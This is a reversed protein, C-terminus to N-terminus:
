SVLKTVKKVPKLFKERIVNLDKTKLNRINKLNMTQFVIVSVFSLYTM